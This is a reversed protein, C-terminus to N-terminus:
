HLGYEAKKAPKNSVGPCGRLHPADVKVKEVKDLM